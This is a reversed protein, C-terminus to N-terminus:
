TIDNQSSNLIERALAIEELTFDFYNLILKDAQKQGEYRESHNRSRIQAYDGAIYIFKNDHLRSLVPKNIYQFSALWKESFEKEEVPGPEIYYRLKENNDQISHISFLNKDPHWRCVYDMVDNTYFVDVDKSMPIGQFIMYGPDFFYSKGQWIYVLAFHPFTQRPMPARVIHAQIDEQRLLSVAAWTLSFCTGGWKNENFNKLLLEVNRPRQENALGMRFIKSINEYPISSFVELINEPASVPM